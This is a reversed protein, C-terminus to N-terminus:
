FSHNLLYGNQHSSRMPMTTSPRALPMRSQVTLSDSQQQSSMSMSNNLANSSRMSRLAALKPQSMSNNDAFRGSGQLSPAKFLTNGSAIGSSSNGNVISLLSADLATLPRGGIQQQQVKESQTGLLSLAFSSDQGGHNSGMSNTSGAKMISGRSNRINFHDTPDVVGPLDRPNIAGMSRQKNPIDHPHFMHNNNNNSQNNNNNARKHQAGNTAQYPFSAANFSDNEEEDGAMNSVSAERDRGLMSHSGIISQSDLGNEANMSTDMADGHSVARSRYGESNNNNINHLNGSSSGSGMSQYDNLNVVICTVNDMSGRALAMHVLEDAIAQPRRQLYASYCVEAVDKNRLVDWMGDSAMVLFDDGAQLDRQMLEADPRIVTRLTRNGFARSVALVRNVRAVGMCYVVAGGLSAIRKQEDPNTPKHDNSMQLPRGNSILVSRCDGVNAVTLKNDRIVAVNGTSGDHWKGKEALKLFQENVTIFCKKMALPLNTAFADDETLTTALNQALYQSCKGGAHGDFLGYFHTESM